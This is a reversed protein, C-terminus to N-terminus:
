RIGPPCPVELVALQHFTVTRPQLRGWAKKWPNHIRGADIAFGM